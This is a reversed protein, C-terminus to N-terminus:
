SKQYSKLNVHLYLQNILLQINRKVKKGRKNYRNNPNQFGTGRGKNNNNNGKYNSNGQTKNQDNKQNSHPQTNNTGSKQQPKNQNNNPRNQEQKNVRMEKSNSKNEVPTSNKM